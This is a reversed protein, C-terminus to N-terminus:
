RSVSPESIRTPSTSGARSTKARPRDIVTAGYGVCSLLELGLAAGVTDRDLHGLARTVGSLAPVASLLGAVVAILLTLSIVGNRLQRSHARRPDHSVAPPAPSEQSGHATRPSAV